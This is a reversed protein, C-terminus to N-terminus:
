GLIPTMAVHGLHPIKGISCEVIIYRVDNCAAIEGGAYMINNCTCLDLFPNHTRLLTM